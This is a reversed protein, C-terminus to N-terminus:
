EGEKIHVAAYLYYNHREGSREHLRELIDVCREREAKIAANWAEEQQVRDGMSKGFWENFTM